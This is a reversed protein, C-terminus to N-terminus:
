FMVMKLLIFVEAPNTIWVQIIVKRRKIKGPPNHVKVSTKNKKLKEEEEERLQQEREKQTM